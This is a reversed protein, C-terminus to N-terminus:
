PVTSTTTSSSSSTSNLISAPTGAKRAWGAELPGSVTWMVVALPILVSAVAAAIRYPQRAPWGSAIRVWCAALVVATCAAYVIQTWGNTTDSGTGLGHLVAIPWAAWATWHIARWVGYSVHRRLLSSLVVALTLDVAIAGLGLWLPRYPSRFPIVADLWGIPAFGDLVTTAIHLGLFVMAVLSLNRHVEQTVFRPWRPSQWAVKALVGVAVSATLLVLAVLGSGRTLYWMTQTSALIM